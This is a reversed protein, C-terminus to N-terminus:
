VDGILVDISVNQVSLDAAVTVKSGNNVVTYGNAPAAPTLAGVTSPPLASNAV